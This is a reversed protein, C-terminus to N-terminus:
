RKYEEGSVTAVLSEMPASSTESLLNSQIAAATMTHTTGMEESRARLERPVPAERGTSPRVATAVPGAAQVEATEASLTMAAVMAAASVEASNAAGVGVTEAPIAATTRFRTAAAAEMAAASVKASTVAEATATEASALMESAATDADLAM